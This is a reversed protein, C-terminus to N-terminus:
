KDKINTQWYIFLEDTTKRFMEHIWIKFSHHFEYPCYCGIWEVFEKPYCDPKQKIPRLYYEVDNLWDLKFITYGIDGKFPYHLLRGGGNKLIVLYDGVKKPLDDETKIYVKEFLEKM